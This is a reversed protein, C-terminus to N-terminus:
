PNSPNKAKPKPIVPEILKFPLKLIRKMMGGLEDGVAEPSLPTVAPDDYSGSVRVPITLISGGLVDKLVPVHKVVSDATTFPAVLYVAEVTRKSLDFTGRGTIDAALGHLVFEKMVFVGNKIKGRISLKSYALGEKQADPLKGKLLETANLYQLVRMVAVDHIIRGNKSKFVVESQLTDMRPSKEGQNIFSGSFNYTGSIQLDKGTLCNLAPELPQQKAAASLDFKTEAAHFSATGSINVGCIRAEKVHVDVGESRVLIEGIFPRATWGGSSFSDANLRLNVRMPVSTKKAEKMESPLGSEGKDSGGFLPKLKEWDLEDTKLDLRWGDAAALVSGTITHAQDGATIVLPDLLITQGSAKLSIRNIIVPAPLEFPPVLGEGELFGRITSEMPQDLNVHGTVDGRIWGFQFAEQRFLGTLTEHLLNGSFTLDMKGKSFDLTLDARSQDDRIALKKVLIREPTRSM